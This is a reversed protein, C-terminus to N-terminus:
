RLKLGDVVLKERARVRSVQEQLDNLKDAQQKAQDVTVGTKSAKLARLEGIAKELDSRLSELAAKAESLTKRAEEVKTSSGADPPPRARLARDLERLEREIKMTDRAVKASQDDLATLREPMVLMSHPDAGAAVLSAVVVGALM